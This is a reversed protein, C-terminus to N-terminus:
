RDVVAHTESELQHILGDVWPTDDHQYGIAELIRASNRDAVQYFRPLV